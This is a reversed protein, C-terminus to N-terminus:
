FPNWTPRETFKLYGVNLGLRAGVGSRIPVLTVTANPIGNNVLVTMGLGGVLYASGNVGAYRRYIAVSSPLDYVLMMTRNGDGGFDWGISPGQWYVQRRGELKTYLFGDGYRLGGVIAGSGEQGIIYGNPLGYASVAKEVLTALGGSVEGFFHHGADVIEQASYTDSRPASAPPTPPSAPAAQAPPALAGAALLVAAFLSSFSRSAAM